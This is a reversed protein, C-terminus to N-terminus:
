SAPTKLGQSFFAKVTLKVGIAPHRDWLFTARVISLKESLRNEPM